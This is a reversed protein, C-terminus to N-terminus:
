LAGLDNAVVIADHLSTWCDDCFWIHNPYYQTSCDHICHGNEIANLIRVAAIAIQKLATIQKANM